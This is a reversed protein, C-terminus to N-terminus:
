PPTDVATTSTAASSSQSMTQTRGPQETQLGGEQKRRYNLMSSLGIHDM